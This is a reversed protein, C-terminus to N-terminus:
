FNKFHIKILNIFSIDTFSGTVVASKIDVPTKARFKSDNM